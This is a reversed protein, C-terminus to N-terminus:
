WFLTGELAEVQRTLEENESRLINDDRLVAARLEEDDIEFDSSAHQRTLELAKALM